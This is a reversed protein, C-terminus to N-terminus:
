KTLVSKKGNRAAAAGILGIAMLMWTSPEPVSFASLAENALLAHFSASPHLPDSFASVSCNGDADTATPVFYQGGSAEICPSAINTIGYLAGGNTTADAFVTDALGALDLLQIDLNIGLGSFTMDFGGILAALSANFKLTVDTSAPVVGLAVAEPTRGLDALNSFLIHRAGAQALLAATNVVNQATATAAATRAAEDTASAGPNASRADRLDNAGAMVIYLANPDAARTLSGGFVGGNWNILQGVLGTTAGAAGGLDTRAGGFAFNTGGQAGIPMVSTGNFLLNAPAALSPLGLGAALHDVWVPGDSFRGPAGSYSPFIPAGFAATLSRVNGTDSLSDGFLVASSFLTANAAGTLCSFALVLVARQKRLNRFM